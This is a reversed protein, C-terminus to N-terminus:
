AENSPSSTFFLKASPSAFMGTVNRESCGQPRMRGLWFKGAGRQFHFSKVTPCGVLRCILRERAVVCSRWIIYYLKMKGCVSTEGGEPFFQKSLESWGKLNRDSQIPDYSLQYLVV